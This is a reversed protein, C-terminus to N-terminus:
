ILFIRQNVKLERRIIKMIAAVKIMRGEKKISKLGSAWNLSYEEELSLLTLSLHKPASM